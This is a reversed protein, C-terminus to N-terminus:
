MMKDSFLEYTILLLLLIFIVRIQVGLIESSLNTGIAMLASLLGLGFAYWKRKNKRGLIEDTIM